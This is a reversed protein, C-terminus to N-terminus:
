VSVDNSKLIRVKTKTFINSNKWVKSLRYYAACAKGCRRRIDEAAGGGKSVESGLYTFSEVEEIEEGDISFPANNTTNICMSKTKGINIRLGTQDGFEKIRDLKRQLQNWTSALLAIDDAFDLDELQEM